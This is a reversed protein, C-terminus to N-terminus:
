TLKERTHHPKRKRVHHYISTEVTASHVIVVYSIFTQQLESTFQKWAYIPHSPKNNTTQLYPQFM